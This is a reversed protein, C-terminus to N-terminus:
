PDKPQNGPLDRWAARLLTAAQSAAHWSTGTGIALV